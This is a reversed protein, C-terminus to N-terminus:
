YSSLLSNRLSTASSLQSKLMMGLLIIMADAVGKDVSTKTAESILRLLNFLEFVTHIGWPWGERGRRKKVSGGGVGVGAGM